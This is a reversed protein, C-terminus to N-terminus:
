DIIAHRGGDGLGGCRSKGEPDGAAVRMKFCHATGELLLALGGGCLAEGGGDEQSGAKHRKELTLARWLVTWM